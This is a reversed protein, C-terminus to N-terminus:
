LVPLRLERRAVSMLLDPHKKLRIGVWWLNKGAYAGVDRSEIMPSPLFMDGGKEYGAVPEFEDGTMELFAAIGGRTVESELLATM